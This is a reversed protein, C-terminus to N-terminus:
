VKSLWNRIMRFHDTIWCKFSIWVKMPYSISFQHINGHNFDQCYLIAVNKQSYYKDVHIFTCWTMPFEWWSNLRLTPEIRNKFCNQPECNIEVVKIFREGWLISIYKSSHNALKSYSCILTFECYALNNERLIATM